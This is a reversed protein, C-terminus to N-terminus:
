KLAGFGIGTSNGVGVEWAFALQESTGEIIVPCINVRNGISKYYIVKTHAAPYDTQFKVKVGASPLEALNLKHQLTETLMKECDPHDFTYHYDKNNITRKVLVPSNVFFTQSSPFNPTEKITVDTVILGFAIEPHQQIGNILQKLFTSHYASIEWTAGQPFCLGDKKASGGKLWSFSYMGMSGHHDNKGLWKHIAGTLYVQYNFPVHPGGSLLKLHLRM